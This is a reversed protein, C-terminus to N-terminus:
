KLIVIYPFFSFQGNINDLETQPFFFVFFFLFLLSSTSILYSLALSVLMSNYGEPGELTCKM